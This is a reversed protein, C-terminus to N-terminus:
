TGRSAPQATSPRDLVIRATTAADLRRALDFASPLELSPAEWLRVTGDFSGTVLHDVDRWLVRTIEKTHGRLVRHQRTALDWLRLTKDWSASALQRGDPSFAVDLVFDSHGRLVDVVRGTETSWLRITRDALGGAIWRGDPSVTIRSAMYGGTPLEIVRDGSVIALSNDCRHVILRDTVPEFEALSICWAAGKGLKSV